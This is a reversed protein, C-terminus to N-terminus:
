EPHHAFIDQKRVAGLASLIRFNFRSLVYLRRFVDEAAGREFANAVLDKQKNRTKGMKLNLREESIRRRWKERWREFVSLTLIHWSFAKPFPMWGTLGFESHSVM